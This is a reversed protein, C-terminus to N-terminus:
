KRGLGWKKQLSARENYQGLGLTREMRHGATCQGTGKSGGWGQLDRVKAWFLRVLKCDPTKPEKLTRDYTNVARGQAVRYGALGVPM